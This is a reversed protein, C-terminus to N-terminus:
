REELKMSNNFVNMVFSIALSLALYVLGLLLMCELARGTQNLTIGGLTARVDAYGVALALSSNKTLNLYQSTLPPIIVRMAQPLIVLSMARNPRVGLAAAAESQGKSVSLIGARVIETIFAGTYLSLALWLAMLQNSLQFGGSFNFGTLEPYSLTVPRGLVFFALVSPVIVIAFLPWVMPLLRGTDFLLKKAYRRYAFAGILSAVFVAVLLGSNAGWIPAPLYTGRNTVAISNWILSATATGDDGVRFDGPRPTAESFVAYILLIWLLLPVNRFGEVYVAMLRSVLWNRSLRLVGALVGLITALIIGLFAVLLTNYLGVLAADFHSGANTYGVLWTGISSTIDYSARSSLFSFDPQLGLSALNALLNSVLWYIGVCVLALTIVQITLSRYRTDYILQSLRFSERPPSDSMSSM